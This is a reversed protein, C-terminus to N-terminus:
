AQRNLLLDAAYGYGGTSREFAGSQRIRNGGQAPLDEEQFGLFLTRVGLSELSHARIANDSGVTIGQLLSYVGDKSDIKGDHNDDFNSLELFGNLAGHQDGFLEKGNDIRGNGDRDLALFADGGSVFATRDIAGDGNIDFDLGNVIDTASITGDGNLDLALPDSQQVEVVAVSLSIDIDYSMNVTSSTGDSNKIEYSFSGHASLEASVGAFHFGPADVTTAQVTASFDTSLEAEASSEGSTANQLDKVRQLFAERDGGNSEILDAIVYVYSDVFQDGTLQSSQEDPAAVSKANSTPSSQQPAPSEQPQAKQERLIENLDRLSITAADGTDKLRDLRSAPAERHGAITPRSLGARQNQYQAEFSRSARLEFSSGSM